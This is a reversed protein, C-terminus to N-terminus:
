WLSHWHRRCFMPGINQRAPDPDLSNSLRLYCENFSIKPFTIYMSNQRFFDVSLFFDNFNGLMCLTQDSSNLLLIEPIKTPLIVNM